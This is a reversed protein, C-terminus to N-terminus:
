QKPAAAKKQAQPKGIEAKAREVAPLLEAWDAESKILDAQLAAIRAEWARSASTPV